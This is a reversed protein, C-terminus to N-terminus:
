AKNMKKVTQQLLDNLWSMRGTKTAEALVKPMNSSLFVLKAPRTSEDLAIKYDPISQKAVIEKISKKFDKDDQTSGMKERLGPLNITWWAQQGTHKRGVEYLRRELGQSLRFYAPNVTLVDNNLAARHLWSSLTIELELAGKGNKTYQVVDFEEILGFGSTREKDTTKENTQITTGRLRMCADIIREFAAGGTSKGTALFFSYVNMKIRRGIVVGTEEQTKVIYSILYLLIDKDFITAAGLVSPVVRLTKGGRSFERISTDKKKMLSFVPLEMSSMDDKVPVDRVEAPVVFLDQTVFDADEQPTHLSSFLDQISGAMSAADNPTSGEEAEKSSAAAAADQAKGPKSNSNKM